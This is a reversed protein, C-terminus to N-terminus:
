NRRLPCYQAGESCFNPPQMQGAKNVAVQGGKVDSNHDIADWMESKEIVVSCAALDHECASTAPTPVHDLKASKAQRPNSAGIAHADKARVFCRQVAVM